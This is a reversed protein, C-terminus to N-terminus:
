SELARRLRENEKRLEECDILQVILKEKEEELRHIQERLARLREEQRRNKERLTDCLNDSGYARLQSIRDRLQENNYLTGRSVGAYRAVSEFNIEAGQERLEDIAANVQKITEEKKKKAYALLADSREVAQTNKKALKM